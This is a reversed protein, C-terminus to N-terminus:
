FLVAEKESLAHRFWQSVLVDSALAAAVAHRGEPTETSVIVRKFFTTHGRARDLFLSSLARAAGSRGACCTCAVAHGADPTFRAGIPADAPQHEGEVLWADDPRAGDPPDAFLVPVRADLFSTV